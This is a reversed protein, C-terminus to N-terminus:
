NAPRRAVGISGDFTCAGNASSVRMTMGDLNVMIESAAFTLSGTDTCTGNGAISGLKGTQSYTGTYNCTYGNGSETMSLSTGVQTVSFTAYADYPGNGSSCGSWTGSTAGIYQGSLDELEWTQREINKTVSVGDVTYTLRATSIASTAFTLTGVERLTVSAPNFTGAGFWPGTTQYLTGTFQLEGATTGQYAVDSAVYWTPATNSAYIFLTVFLTENQQIVNAGWGNEAPIWWLDTYDTTASSAHSLTALCTLVAAIFRKM